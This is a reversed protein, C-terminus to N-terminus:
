REVIRVEDVYDKRLPYGWDDELFLRRLDTHNNFKVGLLDYVERELYKAGQWVPTVTDLVPAERNATKVKLVMTHRYKTSEIHYVIGLCEPYDIGSLCILYDFSTEDSGKLKQASEVLSEPTVTIEVYQPGQVILAEPFQQILYEKLEENTM